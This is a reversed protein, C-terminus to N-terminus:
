DIIRVVNNIMSDLLLSNAKKKAGARLIREPGHTQNSNERTIMMM